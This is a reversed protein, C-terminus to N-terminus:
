KVTIKFVHTQEEKGRFMEKITITTEGSSKAQFVFTQTAEDAGSMGKEMAEKNKYNMKDHHFVVIETNDIAYEIHIGVSAHVTAEYYFQEGKKVELSTQSLPHLTKM